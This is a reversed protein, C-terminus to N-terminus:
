SLISHLVVAGENCTGAASMTIAQVCQMLDSVPTNSPITPRKSEAKARAKGEVLGRAEGQDVAADFHTPWESEPTGDEVFGAAGMHRV